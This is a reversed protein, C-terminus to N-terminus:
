CFTISFNQDTCVWGTKNAICCALTMNHDLRFWVTQDQKLPNINNNINSRKIHMAWDLWKDSYTAHREM